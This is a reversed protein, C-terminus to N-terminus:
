TGPGMVPGKHVSKIGDERLCGSGDLFLKAIKGVTEISEVVGTGILFHANM